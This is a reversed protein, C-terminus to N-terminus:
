RRLRHKLRPWIFKRCHVGISVRWVHQDLATSLEDIYESLSALHHSDLASVKHLEHECHFSSTQEPPHSYYDWIQTLIYKMFQVCAKSTYHHLPDMNITMTVTNHLRIDNYAHQVHAPSCTLTHIFVGGQQVNDTPSTHHSTFHSQLSPQKSLGIQAM